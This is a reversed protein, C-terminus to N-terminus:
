VVSAQLVQAAIHAAVQRGVEIAKVVHLERTLHGAVYLRPVTTEFTEPNYVPRGDAAIEAGASELLRTDPDAGILAFVHDCALEVLEDSPGSAIRLSVTHPGIGVIESSTLIQLNGARAARELPERVW